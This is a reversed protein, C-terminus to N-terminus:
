GKTARAIVVYKRHLAACTQRATPAQFVYVSFLSQILDINPAKKIFAKSSLTSYNLWNKKKM